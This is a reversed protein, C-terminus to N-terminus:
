DNLKYWKWIAKHNEECFEFANMVHNEEISYISNHFALDVLYAAGDVFWKKKGLKHLHIHKARALHSSISLDPDGLLFIVNFSQDLTLFVNYLYQKINKIM